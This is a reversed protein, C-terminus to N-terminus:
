ARLSSGRVGSPEDGDWLLYNTVTRDAPLAM